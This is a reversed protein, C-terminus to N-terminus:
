WYGLKRLREMIEEQDKARRFMKSVSPPSIKTCPKCGISRYGKDYLPNYPISHM